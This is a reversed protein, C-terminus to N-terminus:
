QNQNCFKWEKMIEDAHEPFRREISEKLKLQDKILFKDPQAKMEVLSFNYLWQILRIQEKNMM